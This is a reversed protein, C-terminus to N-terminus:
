LLRTVVSLFRGRTDCAELRQRMAKLAGLVAREDVMGRLEDEFRGRDFAKEYVVSHGLFVQNKILVRGCGAAELNLGNTAQEPQTPVVLSPVGQRLHTYCAGAGGTCVVADALETATRPPLFPQCLLRDSAVSAGEAGSSVLVRAGVRLCAQIIQDTLWRDKTLTGSNVYITPLSDERSWPIVAGLREWGEWFIPGIWHCHDPLPSLRGIEEIEYLLNVDGLLCENLRERPEARRARCPGSFSRAGYRWFNDLIRQQTRRAETCVEDFGLVGPYFPMMCAGNISIRPVPPAVAASIFDFIGVVLDPQVHKLVSAQSRFCHEIHVAESFWGICPFPVGSTEWLERLPHCRRHHTSAWALRRESLGVHTEYGAAELWDACAFARAAHSLTNTNPLLLIRKRRPM